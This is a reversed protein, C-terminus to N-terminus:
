QAGPQAKPWLSFRVSATTGLIAAETMEVLVVLSVGLVAGNVAPHLGVTVGGALAALLLYATASVSIIGTRGSSLIMGKAAARMGLGLPALWLLRMAPDVYGLLDPPLPFVSTLVWARLAPVWGLAFTLACFIGTMGLSFRLFVRARDPSSALIQGTNQLAWLASATLLILPHLVGFSAQAAESDTTRGLIGNILPRLGTWSLAAVVLPAAFSWLQGWRIDDAGEHGRGELEDVFGRTVWWVWATEAAIGLSLALAATAAGVPLFWPLLWLWLSLTGLRLATAQTLLRTRETRLALATRLGRLGLLLPIPSHALAVRRAEDSVRPTCDLLGQFAWDGLPTLGLALDLASTLAGVALLARWLRRYSRPGGLLGAGANPAVLLPANFLVVLGFCVGYAALHLQPDPTRSLRLNILPNSLTMMQSTLVLPAYFALIQGFRLQQAHSM